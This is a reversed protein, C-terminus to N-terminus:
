NFATLGEDTGLFVQNHNSFADWVVDNGLSFPNQSNHLYQSLKGEQYVYLGDDSCLLLKDHIIELSKVVMSGTLKKVDVGNTNFKM